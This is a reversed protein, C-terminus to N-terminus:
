VVLGCLDSCAYDDDEDGDGADDNFIMMMTM